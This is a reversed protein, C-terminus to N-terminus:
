ETNQFCQIPSHHHRYLGKFKKGKEKKKKFVLLVEYFVFSFQNM